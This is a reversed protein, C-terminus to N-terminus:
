LHWNRRAAVDNEIWERAEEESDFRGAELYLSSSLPPEVAYPSTRVVLWSGDDQRMPRWGSM